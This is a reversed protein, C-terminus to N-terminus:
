RNDTDGSKIDKKKSNSGFLKSLGYGALGVVAGAAAVPAMTVAFATGAVSLGVGGIVSSALASAGVGAAAGGAIAGLANADGEEIAKKAGYAASGVIAGAAIVPAGVVGVGGFSGVLGIGGIQTAAAAGGSILAAGQAKEAFDKGKDEV